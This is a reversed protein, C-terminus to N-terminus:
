EYIKVAGKDLQLYETVLKEVLEYKNIHALNEDIVVQSLNIEANTVKIQAGQAEGGLTVVAGRIGENELAKQVGNELYGLKIGLAYDLYNEDLVIESDFIDTDSSGTCSKILSPLPLVIVLVTVAAFIAKIYNNMRGSPLVLDVVAGVAVIGLISLIWATM